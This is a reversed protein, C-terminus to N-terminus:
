HQIEGASMGFQLGLYIRQNAFRADRSKLDSWAWFAQVGLLHLGMVGKDMLRWLGQDLKLGALVMPAFEYNENTIKAKSKMLVFQSGLGVFPRLVQRHALALPYSYDLNLLLHDCQDGQKFDLNGFKQARTFEGTAAGFNFDLGGMPWSYGLSLGFGLTSRLWDSESGFIPSQLLGGRMHFGSGNWSWDERDLGLQIAKTPFYRQILKAFGQEKEKFSGTNLEEECVALLRLSDLLEINEQVGNEQSLHALSDLRQVLFVSRERLQAIASDPGLAQQHLGKLYAYCPRHPACFGSLWHGRTHVSQAQIEEWSLRRMPVLARVWIEGKDFALDRERLTMSTWMRVLESEKTAPSLTSDLLDLVKKRASSQLASDGRKNLLQESFDCALASGFALWLLLFAWLKM